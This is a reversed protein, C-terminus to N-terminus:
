RWATIERTSNIYKNRIWVYWCMVYFHVLILYIYWLISVTGGPPSVEKVSGWAAVPVRPECGSKDGECGAFRYRYVSKQLIISPMESCASVILIWKRKSIPVVLILYSPPSPSVFWFSQPVYPLIYFNHCNGLNANSIDEVSSCTCSPAVKYICIFRVRARVRVCVEVIFLYM